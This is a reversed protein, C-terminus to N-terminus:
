LYRQAFELRDTLYPVKKLSLIYNVPLAYYSVYHSHKDFLRVIRVLTSYDIVPLDVLM